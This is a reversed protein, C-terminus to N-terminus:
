RGTTVPPASPPTAVLVPRNALQTLLDLQRRHDRDAKAEEPDTFLVALATMVDDTRQRRDVQRYNDLLTLVQDREDAALDDRWAIAVLERLVQRVKPGLTQAQLSAVLLKQVRAPWGGLPRAFTVEIEPASEGTPDDYGQAVFRELLGQELRDVVLDNELAVAVLRDLKARDLPQDLVLDAHLRTLRDLHPARAATAPAHGALVLLCAMVLSRRVM